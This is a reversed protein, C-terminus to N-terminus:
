GNRGSPTTSVRTRLISVCAPMSRSNSSACGINSARRRPTFNISSRIQKRRLFTTGAPSIRHRAHAMIPVNYEICFSFLQDLAEDLLEGFATSQRIKWDNLSEGPKKADAYKFRGPQYLHKPFMHYKIQDRLTKDARTEVLKNNRPRFGMPPYLKVGVFGDKVIASKLLRLPSEYQPQGTTKELHNAHAQRWPCFGFFSHCEGPFKRAIMGMMEVQQKITTPERKVHVLNTGIRKVDQGKAEILSPKNAAAKPTQPGDLWYEFDVLAPTFLRTIDSKAAGYVKFQDRLRLFNETRTQCMPTIFRLHNKLVPSNTQLKSNQLSMRNAAAKVLEDSLGLGRDWDKPIYAIWERLYSYYHQDGPDRRYRRAVTRVLRLPVGDLTLDQPGKVDNLLAMEQWYSPTLLLRDLPYSSGGKAVSGAIWEHTRILKLLESFETKADDYIADVQSKNIQYISKTGNHKNFNDFAEKLGVVQEMFQYAPIDTANFIHCHVDIIPTSALLKSLADSPKSFQCAYTTAAKTAAQVPGVKMTAAASATGLVWNLFRRRDIANSM